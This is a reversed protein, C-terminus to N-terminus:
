SRTRGLAETQQSRGDTSQTQQDTSDSEVKQDLALNEDSCCNTKSILLGTVGASGSLGLVLLFM